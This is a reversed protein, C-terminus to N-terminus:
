ERAFEEHSGLADPALVNLVNYLEGGYNYIPTASLSLRYTAQAAIEAAAQYKDSGNHRLEQGEDFIVSRVRGALHGAWGNLKHYNLIYVDPRFLPHREALKKYEVPNATKPVFVNLSPAFKEIERTWQRPLHTLTVVLAPLARPDALVGIGVASKGLGVDDALLLGGSRLALEVATRQYDRLPVALDFAPPTYADALVEYVLRERDRHEVARCVLRSRDTANMVMPYRDLFWLLERGVEPTDVLCLEGSAGKSLRAFVRKLRLAVQPECRIAWGPREPGRAAKIPKWEVTGYTRGSM